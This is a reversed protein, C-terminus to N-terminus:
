AKRAIRRTKTVSTGTLASKVQGLFGANAYAQSADWMMVGGFSGFTKSYEIIPQLAGSSTYGSGAATLDAPVGLFIKVDRSKSVTKAWTDWQNMNFNWQEEAGAVYSQLGCYNNYFQVFIMDFRVTGNLMANDALDPFPCQPAASLYYTKSTDSNM